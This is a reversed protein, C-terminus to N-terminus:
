GVIRALGATCLAVGVARGVMRGAPLVKELYIVASLGVM